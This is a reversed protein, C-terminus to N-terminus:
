GRSSRIGGACREGRGDEGGPVVEEKFGASGEPTGGEGCGPSGLTQRASSEGVGPGDSASSTGGVRLVDQPFDEVAGSGGDRNHGWQTSTSHHVGAGAGAKEGEGDPKEEFVALDKEGSGGGTRGPSGEPKRAGEEAEQGAKEDDRGSEEKIIRGSPPELSSGAGGPSPAALGDADGGDGSGAMAEVDGLGGGVGPLGGWAQAEGDMDVISGPVEGGAYAGIGEAREEGGEGAEGGEAERGKGGQDERGEERNVEYVMEQVKGGEEDDVRLRLKGKEARLVVSQGEMRGVMYFPERPKGRLAMELVNEAIGKEMVKRLEGQIEFYRDAPFLGGIGQHPRKHNYYKVWHRVREQAEEFSGFQSRVLFEEYITKWFREMKGLTMPHHAQSKIHKVRDKGLEREFRTTGRWNTYQRGRDTLVEKPVGYEGVARRYVEIVQDATQSRYLELGVMYRSYDDIMGVLYAYRGGLRFTFIDGQWMQNPTSREFFRPRSINSFHKKQSPVILSEEQLTRRVTEPSASLFFVRKLLHSIRQVGFFPERKKIEIIKKRVPGPLKRRSESSRVQNRLGAEGREQYAKVWRYVVDKSVGVEKSLLSVPLGEELRLKVCRLKLEFGYRKGFRSEKGKSKRKVEEVNEMMVSGKERLLTDGM